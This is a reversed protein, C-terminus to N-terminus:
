KFELLMLDREKGHIVERTVSVFGIKEWFARMSSTDLWIGERGQEKAWNVAEAIIKRAIGLKRYKPDVAVWSLHALNDVKKGLIRQVNADEAESKLIGLYAVPTRLGFVFLERDKKRIFRSFRDQAWEHSREDGRIAVGSLYPIDASRAVRARGLKTTTRVGIRSFVKTM